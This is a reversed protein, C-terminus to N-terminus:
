HMIDEDSYLVPGLSREQASVSKPSKTVKFLDM